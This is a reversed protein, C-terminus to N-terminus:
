AAGGAGGAGGAEPAAEPAATKAPPPPGGGFLSPSYFPRSLLPDDDSQELLHIRFLPSEVVMFPNYVAGMLLVRQEGMFFHMVTAILIGSFYSTFMERLKAQDYEHKSMVLGELKGLKPAAVFTAADQKRTILMSIWTFAVTCYLCSLVFAFQLAMITQPSKDLRTMLLLGSVAPLILNLHELINAM